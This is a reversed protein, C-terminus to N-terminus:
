TIPYIIGTYDGKRAEAFSCISHFPPKLWFRIENAWDKRMSLSSQRNADLVIKDLSDTNLFDRGFVVCRKDLCPVFEQAQKTAANHFYLAVKFASLNRTNSDIADGIQPLYLNILNERYREVQSIPSQIPYTGRSDTVFYRTRKRKQNTTKDFFYEEKTHDSGLDWDKVEFIVVGVSPNLIALDPKDGNLYPQLYIEWTAPLNKDLFKALELEGDTLPPKFNYIQEWDPFIRSSM